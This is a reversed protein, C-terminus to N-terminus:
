VLYPRVQSKYLPIIKQKDLFNAVRRLASVRFSTQHAVHKLYRKFRLERDFDVELIRAYDQLPLSVSGFMVRGEVTQTALTSRFIVMAQNNEPAFNM